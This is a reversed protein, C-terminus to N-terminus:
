KKIIVITDGINFKGYEDAFTMSPRFPYKAASEVTEEGTISILTYQIYEGDLTPSVDSVILTYKEGTNHPVCGILLFICTLLTLAKFKM